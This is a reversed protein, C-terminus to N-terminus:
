LLLGLRQQSQIVSYYILVLFCVILRAIGKGIKPFPEDVLFTLGGELHNIRVLWKWGKGYIQCSQWKMFGFRLTTLDAAM